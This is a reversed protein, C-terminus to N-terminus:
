KIRGSLLDEYVKRMHYVAIATEESLICRCASCHPCIMWGCKPCVEVEGASFKGGCKFCYFEPKSLFRLYNEILRSLPINKSEAVSKALNLIEGDVTITLKVKRM